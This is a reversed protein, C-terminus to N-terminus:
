DLRAIINLIMTAINALVISILDNKSQESAVQIHRVSIQLHEKITPQEM